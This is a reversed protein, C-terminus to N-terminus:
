SKPMWGLLKIVTMMLQVSQKQVSEFKEYADAQAQKFDHESIDGREYMSILSPQLTKEWGLPISCAYEPHAQFTVAIPKQDDNNQSFYIAAQIPVNNNGGLSQANTPLKEVMDGHTYFLHLEAPDDSSINKSDDMTTSQLFQKGIPTLQSVGRGAQPGAPTKMAKGGPSSHAFLQHGFCIALTPRQKAILEEQIVQSLEEIWPEQDYASNFSGPVIVGHCNDYASLPPFTGSSVPYVTLVLRIPITGPITEELARSLLDLFLSATHDYPGYPPKAECGLFLLRLENEVASSGDISGVIKELITPTWSPTSTTINPVM